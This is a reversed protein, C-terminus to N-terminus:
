NITLKCMIDKMHIIHKEQILLIEYQKASIKYVTQNWVDNRFYNDYKTQNTYPYTPLHYARLMIGFSDITGGNLLQGYWDKKKYQVWEIPITDLNTISSLNPINADSLAKYIDNNAVNRAAVIGNYVDYIRFHVMYNKIFAQIVRCALLLHKEVEYAIFKLIKFPFQYKLHIFYELIISTAAFSQHSSAVNPNCKTCSSCMIYANDEESLGILEDANSERSHTTSLITSPLMACLANICMVWMFCEIVASM